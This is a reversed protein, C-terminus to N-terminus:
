GEGEQTPESQPQLADCLAQLANDAHENELSLLMSLAEFRSYFKLELGDKGQKIESVRFLDGTPTATKEERNSLVLRFADEDSGFALRVLGSRVMASISRGQLTRDYTQIQQRIDARLMWKTATEEALSPAVGVLGAAQKPHNYLHVYYCFRKERQTM